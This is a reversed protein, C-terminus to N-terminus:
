SDARRQLPVGLRPGKIQNKNPTASTHFAAMAARTRECAVAGALFFGPAELGKKMDPPPLYLIWKRQVEKWDRAELYGGDSRSSLGCGRHHMFASM